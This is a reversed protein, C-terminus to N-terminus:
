RKGRYYQANRSISSRENAKRRREREKRQEKLVKDRAMFERDRAQAANKSANSKAKASSLREEEQYDYLAQDPQWQSAEYRNIRARNSEKLRRSEDREKDAKARAENKEHLRESKAKESEIRARREEEKLRSRESDIAMKKKKGQEYKQRDQMDEIYEQREKLSMNEFKKKSPGPSLQKKTIDKGKNTEVKKPSSYNYIGEGYTKIASYNPAYKHKGWKIGKVGYHYLEAEHNLYFTAM